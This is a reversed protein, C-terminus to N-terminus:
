AMSNGQEVREEKVHVRERNVVTKTASEKGRKKKQKGSKTRLPTQTNDDSLTLVAPNYDVEEELEELGEEHREM